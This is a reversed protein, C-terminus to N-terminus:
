GLAMHFYLLVATDGQYDALSVQDGQATPLNFDPAREGEALFSGGGCAALILGLALTVLAFPFGLIKGGENTPDM